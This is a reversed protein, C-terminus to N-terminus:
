HHLPILKKETKWFMTMGSGLEDDPRITFGFPIYFPEKGKAAMLGIVANEGAHQSIYDMIKAMLAKGIGQRQYHPKVLVDQIYFAIGDDGIVRAMGITEGDSVACACYLSNPLVKVITEQAHVRWGALQRLQIYDEVAPLKEIIQYNM